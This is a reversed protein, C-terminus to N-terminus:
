HKDRSDVMFLVCWAGLTGEPVLRMPGALAQKKSQIKTIPPM